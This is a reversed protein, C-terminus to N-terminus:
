VTFRYSYLDCDKLVFRIRVREGALSSVDTGLKWGYREDIADGYLDPADQLTFGPLPEGSQGQLPHGAGWSRSNRGIRRAANLFRPRCREDRDTRIARAPM